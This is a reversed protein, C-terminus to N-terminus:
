KVLVPALLAEMDLLVFLQGDHRGVARVLRADLGPLAQREELADAPLEILDLVRDVLLGVRGGGAEMVMVSGRGSGPGERELLRRGDIVTLLLGRVNVLGQVSDAAGPIRTAPEASVIERVAGVPAACTLDGVLFVVLRVASSDAMDKLSVFIGFVARNLL